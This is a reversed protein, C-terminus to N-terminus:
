FKKNLNKVVTPQAENEEKESKTDSCEFFSKGLFQKELLIIMSGKLCTQFATDTPIRRIVDSFAEIMTNGMIANEILEISLLDILNKELDHNETKFVQEVAVTACKKFFIEKFRILVEDYSIVNYDVCSDKRQILIFNKIQNFRNRFDEKTEDFIKEVKPKVNTSDFIKPSICTTIQIM